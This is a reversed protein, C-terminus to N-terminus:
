ILLMKTEFFVYDCLWDVAMEQSRRSPPLAAPLCAPAPSLPLSPAVPRQGLGGQQSEGCHQRQRPRSALVREAAGQPSADLSGDSGLTDTPLVSLVM